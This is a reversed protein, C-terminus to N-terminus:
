RRKPHQPEILTPSGDDVVVADFPSRFVQRRALDARAFFRLREIADDVIEQEAIEAQDADRQQGAADPGDVLATAAHDVEGVAVAPRHAYRLAQAHELRAQAVVHRVGAD